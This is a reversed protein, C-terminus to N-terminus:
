NYLYKCWNDKKEPNFSRRTPCGGHCTRFHGCKSCEEPVHLQKVFKEVEEKHVDKISGGNSVAAEFANYLRKRLTACFLVDGGTTMTTFGGMSSACIGGYVDMEPRFNAPFLPDASEVSLAGSSKAFASLKKLTGMFDTPRLNMNETATGSPVMDWVRCRQCGIGRAFRFIDVIENENNKTLVTQCVATLGASRANKLAKVAREFSGCKGRVADHKEPNLGDINTQVQTLGAKRLEHTKEKTLFYGNSNIHVILGHDVATEIFKKLHPYLLPEGGSCTVQRIGSDAFIKILTKARDWPLFKPKRKLKEAAYCYKCRFNCSETLELVVFSLAGRENFDKVKEKADNKEWDFTVICM